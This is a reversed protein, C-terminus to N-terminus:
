FEHGSLPCLHEAKPSNHPLCQGCVAKFDSVCVTTTSVQTANKHALVFNVVNVVNPRISQKTEIMYELKKTM